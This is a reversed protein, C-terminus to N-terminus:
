NKLTGTYPDYICKLPKSLENEPNLLYVRCDTCMYRFECDKCTEIRNKNIYWLSNFQENKLVEQFTTQKINGYSFSSSPCNKIEGNIDISVKRNLCTNYNQAETFLEINPSFKEPNIVGCDNCSNFEKKILVIYPDGNKEKSLVKNAASSTLIVSSIRKYERGLDVLKGLDFLLSYPILIQVDKVISNELFILIEKLETIEVERYFRLQIYKCYLKELQKFINCFDHKEKNIDIIANTIQAPYDWSLDLDPFRDLEDKKCFFGFEHMKLFQIYEDIIDPEYESKLQKITKCKFDNILLDFLSNPIFQFEQRQLDCIVSRRAGKVPICSAFLSFYEEM